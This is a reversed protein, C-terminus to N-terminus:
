APYDKPTFAAVARALSAVLHAAHKPNIIVVDVPEGKLGRYCILARITQVGNESHLCASLIHPKRDTM